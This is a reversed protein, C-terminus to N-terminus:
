TGVSSADYCLVVNEFENMNTKRFHQSASVFWKPINILLNRESRKIFSTIIFEKLENYMYSCTIKM